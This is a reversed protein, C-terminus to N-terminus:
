QDGLFQEALAWAREASAGDHDPLEPDTFLHGGRHFHLEVRAGLARLAERWALVEARPELPDEESLHAQVQWPAPLAAPAEAVGHFLLLRSFRPDEAAVRHALAAGLSFGALVTGAPTEAVSARVRRLLEDRGIADRLSLAAELSSATRGDYLDPAQVRHGRRRLREAAALVAPRLGYASHFLVVDAM